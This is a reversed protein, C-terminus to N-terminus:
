FSNWFLGVKQHMLLNQGKKQGRMIYESSWWMAFMGSPLAM